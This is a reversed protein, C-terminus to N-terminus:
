PARGSNIRVSQPFGRLAASYRTDPGLNSDPIVRTCLRSLEHKQILSFVVTKGCASFFRSARCPGSTSPPCDQWWCFLEGDLCLCFECPDERPVQLMCVAADARDLDTLTFGVVPDHSLRNTAPTECRLGPNAGPDTCAPNTSFLTASPCTKSWTIQDEGTLIMGGHTNM